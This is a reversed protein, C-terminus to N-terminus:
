VAKNIKLVTGSRSCVTWTELRREHGATVVPACLVTQIEKQVIITRVLVGVYM